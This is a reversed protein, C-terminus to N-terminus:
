SPPTATGPPAVSTEGSGTGQEGTTGSVDRTPAYAASEGKPEPAAADADISEEEAKGKNRKFWNFVM